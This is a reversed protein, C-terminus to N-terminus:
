QSTVKFISTAGPSVDVLTGAKWETWDYGKAMVEGSCPGSNNLAKMAAHFRNVRHPHKEIYDFFPEKADFALAFPTELLRNKPEPYKEISDAVKCSAPYIDDIIHAVVANVSIANQAM